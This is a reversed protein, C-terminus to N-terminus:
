SEESSEDSSSSDDDSNGSSALGPITAARTIQMIPKTAIIAAAKM